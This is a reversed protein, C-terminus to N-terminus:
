SAPSSSKHAPLRFLARVPQLFWCVANNIWRASQYLWSKEFRIRREVCHKMHDTAAVLAAAKSVRTTCSTVVHGTTLKTSTTVLHERGFRGQDLRNVEFKVMEVSEKIPSLRLWIMNEVQHQDVDSLVSKPAIIQIQISHRM